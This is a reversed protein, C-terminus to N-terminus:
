NSRRKRFSFFFIGVVVLIAWWLSYGFIYASIPTPYSPLPNPLIGSKQFEAIKEKELPYYGLVDGKKQLVYGDDTFYIGALFYHYTYKHSLKYETQPMDQIEVVKEEEGFLLKGFVFAQSNAKISLPLLLLLAFILITLFKRM